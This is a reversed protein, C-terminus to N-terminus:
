KGRLKQVFEIADPLGFTIVSTAVGFIIVKSIEIERTKIRSSAWKTAKSTQSEKQLFPPNLIILVLMVLVGALFSLMLKNSFLGKLSEITETFGNTFTSSNDDEGGGSLSPATDRTFSRTPNTRQVNNNGPAVATSATSQPLDSNHNSGGGSFSFIKTPKATYNTSLDGLEETFRKGSFKQYLLESKGDDTM